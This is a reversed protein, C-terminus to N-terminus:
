ISKSFVNSVANNHEIQRRDFVNCVNRIFARGNESICL